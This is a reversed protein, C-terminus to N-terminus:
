RRGRKSREPQSGGGQVIAQYHQMARATELGTYFGMTTSIHKHGLVRQVLGHAKPDQDLILKGALHRFLHLHAELGTEKRIRASIRKQFHSPEWTRARSSGPRAPPDM